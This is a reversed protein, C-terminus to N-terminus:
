VTPDLYAEFPQGIAVVNMLLIGLVAIGRIVDVSSIRASERVPALASQATPAPLSSLLPASATM